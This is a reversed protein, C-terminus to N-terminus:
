ANCDSWDLAQGCNECHKPAHYDVEYDARCKPCYGTDFVLEGNEDYGDAELDPKQPIQKKLADVAMQLAEIIHVAFREKKSHCEIHNEIRKIAEKATM